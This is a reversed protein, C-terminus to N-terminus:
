SVIGCAKYFSYRNFQPNRKELSDAQLVIFRGYGKSTFCQQTHAEKALSALFEYDRNTM